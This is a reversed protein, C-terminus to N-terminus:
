QGQTKKFNIAQIRRDIQKILEPEIDRDIILKDLNNKVTVGWPSPGYLKQIPLRKKSTRKYVHSGLKESIFASKIQKGGGKKSIRYRVGAKNQRAKYQKLPIKSSEKQRVTATLQENTAKSVQNIGKRIEKQALVLEKAIEKALTRETRKATQNLAIAVQQRLKKPGVDGLAKELEGLKAKLTMSIMNCGAVSARASAFVVRLWRKPKNRRENIAANDNGVDRRDSPWRVHAM